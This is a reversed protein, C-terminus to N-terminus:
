AAVRDLFHDVRDIADVRGVRVALTRHADVRDPIGVSNWAVAGGADSYRNAAKIRSSVYRLPPVKTPRDCNSHGHRTSEAAEGHLGRYQWQHASRDRRIKTASTSAPQVPAFTCIALRFGWAARSDAAAACRDTDRVRAPATRTRLSSGPGRRSARRLRASAFSATGGPRTARHEEFRHRDIRHRRGPAFRSATSAGLM